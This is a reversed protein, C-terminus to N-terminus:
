LGESWETELLSLAQQILPTRDHPPWFKDLFALFLIPFHGATLGYTDLFRITEKQLVTSVADSPAAILMRLALDANERPGRSLRLKKSYERAYDFVFQFWDFIIWQDSHSGEWDIVGCVQGDCYESFTITGDIIEFTGNVGLGCPAPGLAGVVYVTDGDPGIAMDYLDTGPQLQLETKISPTNTRTWKSTGAQVEDAPMVAAVLGFALVIALAIGLIKPLKKNKM